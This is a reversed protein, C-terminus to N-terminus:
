ERVTPSHGDRESAWAEPDHDPGSLVGTDGVLIADGRHQVKNLLAVEVVHYQYAM